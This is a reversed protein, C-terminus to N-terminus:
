RNSERRTTSRGGRGSATFRLWLPLAHSAKVPRFMRVKSFYCLQENPPTGASSASPSSSMFLSPRHLPPTRLCFNLFHLLLSVSATVHALLPADRFLYFSTLTYFPLSSYLRGPTQSRLCAPLHSHIILLLFFPRKFSVSRLSFWQLHFIVKKKKSGVAWKM